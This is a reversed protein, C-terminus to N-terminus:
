LSSGAEQTTTGAVEDEPSSRPTPDVGVRPRWDYVVRTGLLVDPLSRHRGGACWLLAIPFLASLTARLFATMLRLRRGRRDVVRLGMVHCGYSRGAIAWGVTLYLVTVWLAAVLSLLLNTDNFTFGRPDVLFRFGNWGVYMGVLCACVVAADVAGALSRTVIGATHGQFPRAERPVPSLQHDSM